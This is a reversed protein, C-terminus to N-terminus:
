FDLNPYSNILSPSLLDWPHSLKLARFRETRAISDVDKYVLSAVPQNQVNFFKIQSEFYINKLAFISFFKSIHLSFYIWYRLYYSIIIYQLLSFYLTLHEGVSCKSSMHCKLLVCILELYSSFLISILQLLWLLIVSCSYFM